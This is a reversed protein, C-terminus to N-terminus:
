NDEFKCIPIPKMKHLNPERIQKYKEYYKDDSLSSPHRNFQDYQLLLRINQDLCDKYIEPIMYWSALNNHSFWEEKNQKWYERGRKMTHIEQPEQEGYQQNIYSQNLINYFEQPERFHLTM